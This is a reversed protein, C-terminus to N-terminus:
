NKYCFPCLFIQRGFDTLFHLNHYFVLLALGNRILLYHGLQLSLQPYFQSSFFFTLWQLLLSAVLLLM